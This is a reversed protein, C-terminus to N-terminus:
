LEPKVIKKCAQEYQIRDFIWPGFNEYPQYSSIWTRLNSWTVHSESVQMDVSTRSCGSEGCGCVLIIVDKGSELPSDLVTQHLTHNIDHYSIAWDNSRESKWPVSEQEQNQLSVSPNDDSQSKTDEYEDILDTIPVGDIYPVIGLMSDCESEVFVINCVKLSADDM